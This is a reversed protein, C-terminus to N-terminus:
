IWAIRRKKYVWTQQHTDTYDAVTRNGAQMSKELHLLKALGTLEEVPRDYIQYSLLVSFFFIYSVLLIFILVYRIPFSEFYWFFSANKSVLTFPKYLLVFGKSQHRWTEFISSWRLIWTSCVKCTTFFATVFSFSCRISNWICIM